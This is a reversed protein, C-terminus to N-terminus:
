ERGPTGRAGDGRSRASPWRLACGGRRRRLPREEHRPDPLDRPGQRRCCPAARPRRSRGGPPHGRPSRRDVPRGRPAVRRRPGRGDRALIAQPDESARTTAPSSCATASSPPWAPWARGSRGTAIAAAASSAPSPCPGSRACSRRPGAAAGGRHARLGRVRAPRAAGRDARTPRPGPSRRGGRRAAVCRIWGRARARRRRGRALNLVNHRGVLADHSACPTATARRRASPADRSRRAHRRAVRLDAGATTGYTLVGERRSRRRPRAVRRGRRDPRRTRAPACRRSSGRRPRSTPRRTATTTSTTAASTRSSAGRRLEARRRAGPRARPQLGRAGRGPLGRRARRRAPARLELVGPTTNRPRAGSAAGLDHGITGLLPRRTVPLGPAGRRRALRDDDQGQHRHHRGAPSRGPARRVLRRGRPAPGRGGRPVLLCPLDAALPATTM